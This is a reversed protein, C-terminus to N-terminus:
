IQGVVDDLRADVHPNMEAERVGRRAILPSLNCRLGEILEQSRNGPGSVPLLLSEAAMVIVILVTAIMM